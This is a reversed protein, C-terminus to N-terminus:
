VAVYTKQRAVYTYRPAGNDSPLALRYRKREGVRQGNPLTEDPQCRVFLDAAVVAPTLDAVPALPAVAPATPVPALAAVAKVTRARPAKVEHVINITRGSPHAGPEGQGAPLCKWPAVLVAMAPVGTPCPVDIADFVPMPVVEVAVAESVVVPPKSAIRQPGNDTHEMGHSALYTDVILRVFSPTCVSALELDTLESVLVASPIVEPPCYDMVEDWTLPSPDACVPCSSELCLRVHQRPLRPALASLITSDIVRCVWRSVASLACALTVTSLVYSALAILLLGILLM